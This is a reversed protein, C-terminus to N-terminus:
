APGAMARRRRRDWILAAAILAAGVGEWLAAGVFTHPAKGAVVLGMLVASMLTRAVLTFGFFGPWNKAVGLLYLIGMNIAAASSTAMMALTYDGHARRAVDELGMMSHQLDPSFLGIAGMALQMVGFLSVVWGAASHPRTLM